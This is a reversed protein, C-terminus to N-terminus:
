FRVTAGFRVIRPALVRSPRGLTSGIAETQALVHNANLMNFVDLSGEVRTRRLTVRKMFRVDLFKTVTETRDVGRPQVWITESGQPLGAITITRMLPDGDRATYKASFSLEYPLQYTGSLNFSWPIDTFIASGDRNLRYNPNNLDTNTGPNTYTGSHNFGEHKQLTLGGLLQWRKSMRKNFSLLLGNYDSELVDVNTIVRDRRNVLTPDLSYVAITQVGRQPDTYTRTVTTYASASRAQDVIALGKAIQGLGAAGEALTGLFSPHGMRWGTREGMELTSTLLATGAEFEHHEILLTAELCRGGLSYQPFSHRTAVDILIPVAREAVTRDGTMIAVPCVAQLLVFCIALNDDATQADVLSAQAINKAQDLLGQLLLPRALM